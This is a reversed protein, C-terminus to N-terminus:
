CMRPSATSNISQESQLFFRIDPCFKEHEAQVKQGKDEGHPERRHCFKQRM